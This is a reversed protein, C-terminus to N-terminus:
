YVFHPLMKKVSQTPLTLIETLRSTAIHFSSTLSYFYFYIFDWSATIHILSMKAKLIYLQHSLNIEPLLWTKRRMSYDMKIQTGVWNWAFEIQVNNKNTDWCLKVCIWNTSGKQKHGLEIEHLNLKYERKTQTGLWNWALEIQVGNKNTDWTLKM